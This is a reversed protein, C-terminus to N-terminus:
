EVVVVIIDTVQDAQDPVNALMVVFSVLSVSLHKLDDSVRKLLYHSKESTM